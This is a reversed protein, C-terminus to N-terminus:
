WILGPGYPIVTPEPRMGTRPGPVAARPRPVSGGCCDRGWDSSFTGYSESAISKQITGAGRVVLHTSDRKRSGLILLRERVLQLAPSPFGCGEM